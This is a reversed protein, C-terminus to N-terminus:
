QQWNYIRVVYPRYRDASGQNNFNSWFDTPNINYSLVLEGEKSLHTHITSNYTIFEPQTYKQPIKYITRKNKWPGIPSVADWIYIERGFIIEQSVLYYKGDKEFVNPVTVNQLTYFDDPERAWGNKTLYEWDSTLDGDKVRAIRLFSTLYGNENGYMYTFGDPADFLGSSYPVSSKNVDKVITELKVDPLSFIGVDTSVQQFDWTGNGTKTIHAMLVQLKGNYIHSDGTWYWDVDDASGAYKTWTESLNGEGPNLQIVQNLSMNQQIFAANRVFVNNIRARNNGIHGFFSDQFTWLIDGNPLLVSYCGDGGNWGEYRTLFNNYDIDTFVKVNPDWEGKNVILALHSDYIIEVYWEKVMGSESIVRYTYKGNNLLFNVEKGSAPTITANESVIIVPRVASLDIGDKVQLKIKASDNGASFEAEGLQYEGISFSIIEAEDSKHEEDKKCGSLCTFFLAVILIYFKM